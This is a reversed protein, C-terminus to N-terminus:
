ARPPRDLDFSLRPRPLDVQLVAIRDRRTLTTLAEVGDELTSPAAHHCHGHSCADAREAHRAPDLHSVASVAASEVTPRGGASAIDEGGCLAADVAPGLALVALVVAAVLGGLRRVLTALRLM